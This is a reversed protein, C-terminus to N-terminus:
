GAAVNYEGRWRSLIHREHQPALGDGAEGEFGRAVVHRVARSDFHQGRHAGSGRSSREHGEFAPHQPVRWGRFGLSRQLLICPDHDERSPGRAPGAAGAGFHCVYAEMPASTLDRGTLSSVAQRYNPSLLDRALRRWQASLGDAFAIEDQGMHILARAEYEYGKEGDYGKVTKFQDHPYSQALARADSSAFVNNAFAWDFPDRKLQEEAIASFKLISSEAGVSGDLRSKAWRLPATVRWSTSKQMAALYAADAAARARLAEAERNLRGVELSQAELRSAFEQIAAELARANEQAAEVAQQTGELGALAGVLDARAAELGRELDAQLELAFPLRPGFGSLVANARKSTDRPRKVISAVHDWYRELALKNALAKAGPGRRQLCAEFWDPDIVGTEPFEFVSDHQSLVAYKGWASAPRFVPAGFSLATIAMHMSTGVVARADAILEALAVPSPWHSLTMLGDFLRGVQDNSDGLVLGVPVAIAKKVSLRDGHQRMFAGFAELRNTAQVFIYPEDLGLAERIAEYEPSRRAGDVLASVGFCTDPVRSITKGNVLPALTNFADEDRVAIYASEDLATRMLPEAWAPTPGYSGIANWVVPVGHQQAMLAPMLWYGTPHHVDANPPAYNPAISKDFRVIHGSGILMADLDAVADPLDVVSAVDFPWEPRAKAAYAFPRIKVAGLRKSLEAEAVLPFLLDGFNQLDFTGAIGIQFDDAM